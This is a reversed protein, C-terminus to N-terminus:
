PLVTRLSNMPVTTSLLQSTFQAVRRAPGFLIPFGLQGAGVSHDPKLRLAHRTRASRGTQGAFRSRIASVAM